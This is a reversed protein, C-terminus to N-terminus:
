YATANNARAIAEDRRAQAKALQQEQKARPPTIAYAHRTKAEAKAAQFNAKTIEHQTKTSEAISIAIRRIFDM